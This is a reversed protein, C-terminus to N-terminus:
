RDSSIPEPIMVAGSVRASKAASPRSRNRHHWFQWWWAVTGIASGYRPVAGPDMQWVQAGPALLASRDIHVDSGIPCPAPRAHDGPVRVSSRSDDHRTPMHRQSTTAGFYGPAMSSGTFHLVGPNRKSQAMQCKPTLVDYRKLHTAGNRQPTARGCYHFMAAGRLCWSGV